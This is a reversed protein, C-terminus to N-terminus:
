NPNILACANHLQTRNKLMMMQMDIHANHGHNITSDYTEIELSCFGWILIPEDIDLPDKRANKNKMPNDCCMKERIAIILFGM